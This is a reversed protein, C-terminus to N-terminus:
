KQDGIYKKKLQVVKVRIDYHDLDHWAAAYIEDLMEKVESKPVVDAPVFHKCKETDYKVGMYAYTDTQINARHECVNEHICDECRAM